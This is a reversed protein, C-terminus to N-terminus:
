EGEQQAAIWREICELRLRGHHQVGTRCDRATWEVRRVSSTGPGGRRVTRALVAALRPTDGLGGGDGLGYDWLLSEGPGVQQLRYRGSEGLRQGRRVPSGAGHATATASGIGSLSLSRRMSM